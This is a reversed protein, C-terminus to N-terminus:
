LRRSQISSTAKGPRAPAEFGELQEIVAALSAPGEVQHGPAVKHWALLFRILDASSVPEIEQRLRNLTYSHIRALLRRACWENQQTGPTFSGRLVFGEAELKLLAAEAEAEALGAALWHSATVPGLGELRGRILEM